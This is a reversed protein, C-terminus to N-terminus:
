IHPVLLVRSEICLACSSGRPMHEGCIIRGFLKLDRAMLGVCERCPLAVSRDYATDTDIWVEEDTDDPNDESDWELSDAWTYTPLPLCNQLDPDPSGSPDTKLDRSNYM